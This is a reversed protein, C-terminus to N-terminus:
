TLNTAKLSENILEIMKLRRPAIQKLFNQDIESSALPLGFEPDHRMYGLSNLIRLLVLCEALSLQDEQAVAMFELFNITTAFLNINVEEEGLIKKILNLVNGMIGVKKPSPRLMEFFNKDVRVGVMKWGVKSHILSFEGFSFDQVGMRLKSGINRAGQVRASLLGLEETFLYVRRSDSGDGKGQIVLGKTHHKHYM